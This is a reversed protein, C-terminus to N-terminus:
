RKRKRTKIRKLDRATALDMVGKLRRWRYTGRTRHAEYDLWGEVWERRELILLYKYATAYAVGAKQMVGATTFEENKFLTVAELIDLMTDAGHRKPRTAM